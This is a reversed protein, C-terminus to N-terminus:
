DSNVHTFKIIGPSLMVVPTYNWSDAITSLWNLSLNEASCHFSLFLLFVSIRFLLKGYVMNGQPSNSHFLFSNSPVKSEISMHQSHMWSNVTSQHSRTVM